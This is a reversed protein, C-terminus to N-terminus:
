LIWPVEVLIHRDCLVGFLREKYMDIVMRKDHSKVPFDVLQIKTGPERQACGEPDQLSWLPPCQPVADCDIVM